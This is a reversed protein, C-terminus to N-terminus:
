AHLQVSSNYLIIATSKIFTLTRKHLPFTNFCQLPEKFKLLVQILWGWGQAVEESETSNKYTSEIQVKLVRLPILFLLYDETTKKWSWIVRYNSLHHEACFIYRWTHFCIKFDGYVYEPNSLYFIWPRPKECLPVLLTTPLLFTFLSVSRRGITILFFPSLQHRAGLTFFPLAWHFTGSSTCQTERGSCM